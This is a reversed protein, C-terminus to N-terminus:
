GEEECVFYPAGWPSTSPQIFGKDLLEQLQIKLEKMEAPSMRYPAKSIPQTGPIIDIVFEIEYDILDRPSEEPFVDLFESVIEINEVGMEITEAHLISCLYGRCGKQFLKCAKMASILYSPLVVGRGVFTFEDQGSPRFVVQKSVFDITAYYKALWDMGLIIDFHIMDLPMLNTCLPIDGLLLECAPYISACLMYDGSPLSVCLVYNLPEMVVADSNQVDGPVLAFVRGQRVNDRSTTPRTLTKTAPTSGASSATPRNGEWQGFMPCDRVMHGTKGCNFCAGSARYCVGRHKKGCELCAPASDRTSGSTNSTGLNQKKSKSSASGKHVNSGQRKGKWDSYQNRNAQNSEAIIAKDLVDMYKQVWAEDKLPDIGEKFLPPKMKKFEKTLAITRDDAQHDQVIPPTM